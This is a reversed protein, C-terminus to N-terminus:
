AYYSLGREDDYFHGHKGSKKQMYEILEPLDDNIYETSVEVWIGGQDHSPCFIFNYSTFIFGAKEIFGRYKIFQEAVAEPSTDKQVLVINAQKDIPADKDFIQGIEVGGEISVYFSDLEDGFEEELLPTLMAKIKKEWFEGYDYRDTIGDDKDYWVEFFVNKDDRDRIETVYKGDYWDYWTRDLVVDFESYTEAVYDAVKQHVFISHIPFGALVYGVFLVPALLVVSGVTIFVIKTKKSWSRFLRILVGAVAGFAGLVALAICFLLISEPYDEFYHIIVLLPMIIAPIVLLVNKKIVIPFAFVAPVLIFCLLTMTVELAYNDIGIAGSVTGSLTEFFFLVGAISGIVEAIIQWLRIPANKTVKNKETTETM